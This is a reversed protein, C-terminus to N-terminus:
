ENLHEYKYTMAAIYLVIGPFGWLGSTFFRTSYSIVSDFLLLSVFLLVFFTYIDKRKTRKLIILSIIIFYIQFFLSMLFGVLGYAALVSAWGVDSFGWAYLNEQETLPKVVWMPHMGIGFLMNSNMWLDVLANASNLRTGYTGEQNSVDSEGQEIRAGIAETLYDSQPIYTVFVYILAAGLVAFLAIQRFVLQFEKKKLSNWVFMLFLTFAYYVWAQRGFALIQPMVFLIVLFLQYLRFKDTIWKYVFGLFFLEGYFTGGFVRYVELGGPLSQKVIGIQPLFAIGSIASLIYLINSIIAVPLVLKILYPLGNRKLLLLFPFVLFSMWTGKLRFFYEFFNYDYLISSVLFQALLYVLMLKIIVLLKSKYLERYEKICWLSYITLGYLLFDSIRMNRYVFYLDKPILGLTGNEIFYILFIGWALLKANPALIRPVDIEFAPEHVESILGNNRQRITNIAIRHM